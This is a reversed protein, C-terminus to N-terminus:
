AVIQVVSALDNDSAPAYIPDQGLVLAGGDSIAVGVTVTLRFHSFNNDKDLEAPKLNIVAQDGDNTAKVFQTIAKGTIDKVGTGAADTAQELKADLTAAVGLVGAAVVAQFNEFNAALIWATSIAGIALADPSVVGVVAAAESALNNM